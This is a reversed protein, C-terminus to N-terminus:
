WSLGFLIPVYLVTVAFARVKGFDKEHVGTGLTSHNQPEVPRAKAMAEELGRALPRTRVEFKPMVVIETDSEVAPALSPVPQDLSPAQAVPNYKFSDLVAQRVEPHPAVVASVAGAEVRTLLAVSALATLPLSRFATRHYRAPMTM